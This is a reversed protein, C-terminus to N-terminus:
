TGATARLFGVFCRDGAAVSVPCNWALLFRHFRSPTLHLRWIGSFQVDLFHWLGGAAVRLHCRRSSEREL